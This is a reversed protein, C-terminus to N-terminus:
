GTDQWGEQELTIEWNELRVMIYKIRLNLDNEGVNKTTIHALKLSGECWDINHMKWNEGNSLFKLKRSIERTHKTDKGNKAMCVDSKNDM